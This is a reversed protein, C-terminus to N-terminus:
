QVKQIALSLSPVMTVSTMARIARFGRVGLIKKAASWRRGGSLMYWLDIRDRVGLRSPELLKASGGDRNLIGMIETSTGGRIGAKLLEPWSVGLGIRKSLRRACLHALRDPLYNIFPLSTTHHEIPYWRYPTMNLFIVGGVVLHRWLLPLLVRRENPLLHEYVAPMIIYDLQGIERPISTPDPSLHFRVRNELGFFTARRTALQVHEPLLDIGIIETNTPLLRALVLSSSGGGSGFDLVRRGKFEAEPVYSLISWYLDHQVYLPDEDRRLEDCVYGPGKVELVQEILDLPYATEWRPCHVYVGANADVTLVHKTGDPNRDVHVRGDRHNLITTM